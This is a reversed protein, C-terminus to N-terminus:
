INRRGQFFCTIQELRDFFSLGFSDFFRFSHFDEIPM